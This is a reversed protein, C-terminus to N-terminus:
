PPGTTPRSRLSTPRRSFTVTTLSRHLRRCSRSVRRTCPEHRVTADKKWPNLPSPFVPHQDSPDSTLQAPSQAAAAPTEPTEDVPGPLDAHRPESHETKPETPPSQNKPCQTRSVVWALRESTVMHRRTNPLRGSPSLVRAAAADLAADLSYSEPPKALYRYLGLVDYVATCRGTNRKINQPGDDRHAVIHVHLRGRRGPASGKGVEVVGYVPGDFANKVATFLKTMVVADYLGGPDDPISADLDAPRLTFLYAASGLADM